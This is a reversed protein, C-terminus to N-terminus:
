EEKLYRALVASLILSGVLVTAIARVMYADRTGDALHDATRLLLSRTM